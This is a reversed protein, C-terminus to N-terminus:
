GASSTSETGSSCGRPNCQEGFRDDGDDTFEAACRSDIGAAPAVVIRVGPRVEEGAAVDAAALDDSGRVFETGAGAVIGDGRRLNKGRNVM